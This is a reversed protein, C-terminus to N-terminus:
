WGHSYTLMGQFARVNVEDNYGEFEMDGYMGRAGLGFWGQNDISFEIGVRGYVGYGFITDSRTDPVAYWSPDGEVAERELTGLMLFPGAGAYLRVADSAQVGVFLGMFLDVVTWDVHVSVFQKPNDAPVKDSDSRWGVLAGAELGFSVAPHGANLPLQGALGLLPLKAVDAHAVSAGDGSVADLFTLEPEDFVTMGFIAQPAIAQARAGTTAAFLLLAAGLTTVRRRPKRPSHM